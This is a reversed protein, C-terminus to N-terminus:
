KIHRPTKKKHTTRTYHNHRIQRRNLKKKGKMEREDVETRANDMFFNVAARLSRKEESKTGRKNTKNSFIVKFQNKKIKDEKLKENRL